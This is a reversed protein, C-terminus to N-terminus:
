KAKSRFIAGLGAGLFMGIYIFWENKTAVGIVTGFATGAAIGYGVAKGWKITNRPCGCSTEITAQPKM